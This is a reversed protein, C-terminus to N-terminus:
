IITKFIVQIGWFVRGLAPTKTEGNKFGLCTNQTAAEIKAGHL